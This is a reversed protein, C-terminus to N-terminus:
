TTLDEVECYASAGQPLNNEACVKGACLGAAGAGIILIDCHEMNRM